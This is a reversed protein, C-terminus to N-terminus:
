WLYSQRQSPGACCGGVAAAMFAPPLVFRVGAVPGPMTLARSLLGALASCVSQAMLSRAGTRLDRVEEVASAGVISHSEKQDRTLSSLHGQCASSCFMQPGRRPPYSGAVLVPEKTPVDLNFRAGEM